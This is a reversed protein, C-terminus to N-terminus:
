QRKDAYGPNALARLRGVLAKGMSIDGPQTQVRCKPISSSRRFLQDSALSTLLEVEEITTKRHHADHVEKEPGAPRSLRAM